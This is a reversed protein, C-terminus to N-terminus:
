KESNPSGTPAGNAAFSPTPEVMPAVPSQDAALMPQGAGPAPQGFGTSDTSVPAGPQGVPPAVPVPVPPPPAAAVAAQQTDQQPKPAISQVAMVIIPAALLVGIAFNRYMM